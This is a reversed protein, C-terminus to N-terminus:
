SQHFQFLSSLVHDNSDTTDQTMESSCNLDVVNSLYKKKHNELNELECKKQKELKM